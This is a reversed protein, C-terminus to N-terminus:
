GYKNVRVAYVIPVVLWELWLFLELTVDRGHLLSADVFVVYLALLVPLLACLIFMWVRHTRQEKIYKMEFFWAYLFPLGFAIGGLIGGVEYIGGADICLAAARYM